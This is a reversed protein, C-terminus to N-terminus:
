KSMSGFLKLKPIFDFDKANFTFLEFGFEVATAAILADPVSLRNGYTFQYALARNSISKDPHYLRFKGLLEKTKRKEGRKMGFYIEQATLSSIGCHAM